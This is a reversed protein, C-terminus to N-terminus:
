IEERDFILRNFLIKHNLSNYEGNGLIRRLLLLLFVIFILYNTIKYISQSFFNFFLSDFIVIGVTFLFSFFWPMSSDKFKLIAWFCFFLGVLIFFLFINVGALVGISITLGKGGKLKLFFSWNHGIILFLCVIVSENFFFIMLYTPIFGKIVVDIFLITLIIKQSSFKYINSLGSHYSGKNLIDINYIKKGIIYSTPFSGLVYFIISFIIPIIM